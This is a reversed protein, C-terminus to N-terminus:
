AARSFEAAQTWVTRALREAKMEEFDEPIQQGTGAFTGPIRSRILADIISAPNVAEDLGTFLLREPKLGSFRSLMHLMDASGADARLVLHKEIEPRAAFFSSWEAPETRDAPSIGPTDILALGKWSDGNLALNLSALSEYAQYPTGLIEAFRAMQGQAGVAHAGASFIRVPIRRALGLHVAIKVLSTTKGRGPPGIFALTRSEGPAMETFPAVPIRRALEDIVAAGPEGANQAATHAATSAIEIATERSLGFDLLRQLIYGGPKAPAAPVIQTAAPGGRGVAARLAALQQRIEDMESVTSVLPGATARIATAQTATAQSAPPDWAFTVELRGYQRM